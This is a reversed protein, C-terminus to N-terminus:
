WVKYMVILVYRIQNTGGGKLASGAGRMVVHEPVVVTQARILQLLQRVLQAVRVYSASAGHGNWCRGVICMQHSESGPIMQYVLIVVPLRFRSPTMKLSSFNGLPTSFQTVRSNPFIYNSNSGHESNPSPCSTELKRRLDPGHSVMITKVQLPSPLAWLPSLPSREDAWARATLTCGSDCCTM